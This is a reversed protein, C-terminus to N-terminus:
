NNAHRKERLRNITHKAARYGHRAAEYVVIASVGLSLAADGTGANTQLHKIEPGTAAVEAKGTPPPKRLVSDIIAGGKKGVEEFKEARANAKYRFREYPSMSELDPEFYDRKEPDEDPDRLEGRGPKSNAGAPDLDERTPLGTPDTREPENRALESTQERGYRPEIHVRGRSDTYVNSLDPNTRTEPNTETTENTENPPQETDTGEANKDHDGDQDGPPQGDRTNDDQPKSQETDPPNAPDDPPQEPSEPQSTRGDAAPERDPIQPNQESGGLPETHREGTQAEGSAGETRGEPPGVPQDTNEGAQDPHPQDGDEAAQPNQETPLPENSAEPVPRVEDTKPTGAEQEQDATEGPPTQDGAPTHEPTRSDGQPTRGDRQPLAQGGQEQPQGTGPAADTTETQQSGNDPLGPFEWGAQRLSETRSLLQTPSGPNDTPPTATREPSEAKETAESTDGIDETRPGGSKGDREGNAESGNGPVEAPRPETDRPHAQGDHPTTQGTPQRDSTEGTPATQDAPAAESTGPRPQDPTPETREAPGKTPERGNDRNQSADAAGTPEAGNGTESGPQARPTESPAQRLETDTTRPDQDRGGTGSTETRPDDTEREHDGTQSGGEPDAKGTEPEKEAEPEAEAQPDGPGHQKDAKPDAPSSEGTQQDGGQETSTEPQGNLKWGSQRLEQVRSKQEGSGPDDAQPQDSPSQPAPKDGTETGKDPGSPYEVGM